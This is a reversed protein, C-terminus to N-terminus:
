LIGSEMYWQKRVARIAVEGRMAEILDQHSVIRGSLIGSKVRALVRRRTGQNVCSPSVILFQLTSEAAIEYPMIYFTLGKQKVIHTAVRNM